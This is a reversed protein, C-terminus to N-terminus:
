PDEDGQCYIVVKPRTKLADIVPPRPRRMHQNTQERVTDLVEPNFAEVESLPLTIDNRCLKCFVMTKSEWEFVDIADNGHGRLVCDCDWRGSAEACQVLLEASHRKRTKSM